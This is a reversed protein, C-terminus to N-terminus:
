YRETNRLPSARVNPLFFIKTLHSQKMSELFVSCEHARGAASKEIASARAKATLDNVYSRFHIRKQLVCFKLGQSGVSSLLAPTIFPIIM